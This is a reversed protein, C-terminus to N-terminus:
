ATSRRTLYVSIPHYNNIYYDAILFKMKRLDFLLRLKGNPKQQALTPTALQSFPLTTIVDYKNLLTLEVLNVVEFHPVPNKNSDAPSDHLPSAQVKLETNAGIEFVDLLFTM